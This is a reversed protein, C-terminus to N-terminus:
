GIEVIGEYSDALFLRRLLRATSWRRHQLPSSSHPSQAPCTLANESRMRMNEEENACHGVFSSLLQTFKCWVLTSAFKRPLAFSSLFVHMKRVFDDLKICHM